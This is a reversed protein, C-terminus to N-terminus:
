AREESAVRRLELEASGQISVAHFTPGVTLAGDDPASDWVKLLFASGTREAVVLQRYFPAGEGELDWEAADQEVDDYSTADNDLTVHLKCAGTDEGLVILQELEGWGIAGFPRLEAFELRREIWVNGGGVSDDPHHDQVSSEDLVRLAGKTTTSTLGAAWAFRDAWAGCSHINELGGAIEDRSWAGTTVDMVLVIPASDNDAALVFYALEGENNNVLAAGLTVPHEDVTDKVPQGVFMPPGFGRPLLMLGLSSRYLVGRETVLVSRRDVCGTSVALRSPEPFPNDGSDGPGDGTVLYLGDATFLLWSGDVFVAAVIPEPLRLRFEDADVFQYPEGAVYLKSMWAIRADWGVALMRGGGIAVIQAGSAPANPQAGDTYLTENDEAAVDELTDLLTVWLSAGDQLDVGSAGTVRYYPGGNWQRYVHAVANSRGHCTAVTLAVWLNGGSPTASVPVSPESRVLEGAENIEEYVVRWFYEQGSTLGPSGPSPTATVVPIIPFNNGGLTGGSVGGGLVPTVRAEQLMGGSIYTTPGGSVVQRAKGRHSTVGRGSEGALVDIGVARDGGAVILPVAFRGDSKTATEGLLCHITPGFGLHYPERELAIAALEGASDLIGHRYGREGITGANTERSQVPLCWRVQTGFLPVASVDLWKMAPIWGVANKITTAAGLVDVTRLSTGIQPTGDSADARWGAAVVLQGTAAYYRITAQTQWIGSSPPATLVVQDGTASATLTTNYSRWHVQDTGSTEHWAVAIASTAGVEGSVALGSPTAGTAFSTSAQVVAGALVRIQVNTAADRWVLVWPAPSGGNRLSTVDFESTSNFLAGLTSEGSLQFGVGTHLLLRSRINLGGLERYVVRVGGLDPVIRCNQGAFSGGRWVIRGEDDLAVLEITDSSTGQHWAVVLLEGLYAACQFRTPSLSGGVGVMTLTTRWRPLIPSEQAFDTWVSGDYRQVIGDACFLPGTPQAEAIWHGAGTRPSGLIATGHRSEVRGTKMFRVNKALTLTGPPAIRADIDERMGPQLVIHEPDNM